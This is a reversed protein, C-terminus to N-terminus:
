FYNLSPCQDVHNITIKLVVRLWLYFAITIFM